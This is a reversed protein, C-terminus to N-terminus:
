LPNYFTLKKEKKWEQFKEWAVQVDHEKRLNLNVTCEPKSRFVKDKTLEEHSWVKDVRNSGNGRRKKIPVFDLNRLAEEMYDYGFVDNVSLSVQNQHLLSYLGTDKDQEQREGATTNKEEVDYYSNSSIEESPERFFECDHMKKATVNDAVCLTTIEHYADDSM